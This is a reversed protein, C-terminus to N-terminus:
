PVLKGIFANLDDYGSVEIRPLSLMPDRRAAMGPRTSLGYAFGAAGAIHRTVRDEEGYPYAVATVPTGLAGEIEARSTLMERAIDVPSLGPLRPHTVTHAGFAVGAAALRRVEVWDMLPEAEGTPDWTNWRGVSGSVLMVLADFGYSELRPWAHEAFDAYGDDFTLLVPRDPLTTRHETWACWRDLSISTFGCDRLYRLQAEFADPTIRQRMREPAGDPAVRHYMLVPLTEARSAKSQATRRTTPSQPAGGWRIHSAIEPVPLVVDDIEVVEPVAPEHSARFLAVRYLPTRLERVLTLGETRAFTEVITQAGFPVDWDYGTRTPDDVLLHAHATVFHGGPALADAIRRAVAALAAADGIYYLVESCLILDFPGGLADNVLDLRAVDVNPLAACREATRQVAVESVDTAVLREVREALLATFHGEACALELARVIPGEPLIALTQEYKRTEYPTTYRWPDASRVFLSEFDHRTSAPRDAAPPSSEFAVAPHADGERTWLLSPSYSLPAYAEAAPLLMPTRAVSEARELLDALAGPLAAARSASTGVALHNRHAVVAVSAGANESAASGTQPAFSVGDGNVVRGANLPARRRAAALSAVLREHLTRGDDWPEGVLAERVAVRCVEFGAADVLAQRLADAGVVHAPIAFVGIGAGGVSFAIESGGRAVALAAPLDASDVTILPAVPRARGFVGLVRSLVSSSTPPVEPDPGDRWLEEVFLSWGIADHLARARESADDPLRGAVCRGDRWASWGDVEHRMEYRAYQTREFFRGLLTWACSDAIADRVVVGAVVDDFVPLEVAGLRRGDLEVLALLRQTGHPLRIDAVARTVEIRRAHVGALTRGAAGEPTVVHLVRTALATRIGNGLGPADLRADLADFFRNALPEIRPWADDWADHTRGLAAPVARFISEAADAPELNARGPEVSDLLMSPDREHALMMGAVWALYSLRAGQLDREPRGAAHAAEPLKPDPGHGLAIIDMAEYFHPLPDSSLSGARQAYFALTRRVAGFRAGLRAVRQWMVWDQLVHFSDDFAGAAEVLARRVLCAHIAFASRRAIVHFLDGIVACQGEEIVDGNCAVLAWGCHVADLAADAAVADTLEAFTDPHIWDDADLFFLWDHRARAVGANRAASAGANPQRVLAIRADRRAYAEVIDATDDSSGDDIVIVEWGPETQALLADLTRAITAGSDYAPIVVSVPPRSGM